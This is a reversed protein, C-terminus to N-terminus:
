KVYKLFQKHYKKPIHDSLLYDILDERDRWMQDAAVHADSTFMAAADLIQLVESHDLSEKLAKQFDETDPILDEAGLAKARKAIFKAATAQDKARGYAQIANKLDALDKIPFSGDDLALGKKALEMREEDSYERENLSENTEIAGLQKDFKSIFFELKDVEHQIKDLAQRWKLDITKKHLDQLKTKLDNFEPEVVDFILAEGENLEDFLLVEGEFVSEGVGKGKKAYWADVAKKGKSFLQKGKDIGLKALVAFAVTATVGISLAVDAAAYWDAFTELPLGLFEAENLSEGVYIETKGAKKAEGKAWKVADTYNMSTPTFIPDGGRDDFYFAWKGWGRPKKGHARQYRNTKVEVGETILDFSKIHKM